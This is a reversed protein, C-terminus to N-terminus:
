CAREACITLPLAVFFVFLMFLVFSVGVVWAIVEQTRNSLTEIYELIKFVVYAAGWVAGIMAAGMGIVLGLCILYDTFTM